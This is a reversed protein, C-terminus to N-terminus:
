ILLIAKIVGVHDTPVVNMKRVMGIFTHGTTWCFGLKEYVIQATEFEKFLIVLCLCGRGGFFHM